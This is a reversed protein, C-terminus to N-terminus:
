SEANKDKKITVFHVRIRNGWDVEQEERVLNVFFEKSDFMEPHTKILERNTYYVKPTIAVIRMKTGCPVNEGNEDFVDIKNQVIQGVHFGYKKM